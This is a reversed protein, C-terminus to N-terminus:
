FNTRLAVIPVTSLMPMAASRKGFISGDDAELLGSSSIFHTAHRTKAAMWEM